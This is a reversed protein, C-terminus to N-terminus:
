DFISEELLSSAKQSFPSRSQVLSELLGRSEKLEKTKLKALAKYWNRNDTLLQSEGGIGKNLWHLSSDIENISLYCSAILLSIKGTTDSKEIEMFKGLAEEYDESNYASLGTTLLADGGRTIVMGDYPRYYSLFVQDISETNNLLKFVFFSIMSIFVVSAAVKLFLSKKRQPERLNKIRSRLEEVEKEVKVVKGTELLIKDDETGTKNIEEALELKRKESSTSDDFYEELLDKAEM